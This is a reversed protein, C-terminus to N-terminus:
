IDESGSAEDESGSAESSFLKANIKILTEHIM